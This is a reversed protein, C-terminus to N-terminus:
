HTGALSMPEVLPSSVAPLPLAFLPVVLVPCPGVESPVEPVESGPLLLADLSAPSDLPDLPDVAAPEDVEVPSSTGGSRQVLQSVEASQESSHAGTTSTADRSGIPWQHVPNAHESGASSQVSGPVPAVGAHKISSNSPVTAGRQMRSQLSAPVAPHGSPISHKSTKM